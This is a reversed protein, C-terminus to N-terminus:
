VSKAEEKVQAAGCSRCFQFRPDLAEVFKPEWGNCTKAPSPLVDPLPMRLEYFSGRKAFKKDAYGGGKYWRLNHLAM